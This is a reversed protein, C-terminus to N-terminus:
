GGVTGANVRTILVERVGDILYDLRRSIDRLRLQDNELPQLYQRLVSRSLGVLFITYAAVMRPRDSEAVTRLDRVFAEATLGGRGNELSELIFRDGEAITSRVQTLVAELGDRRVVGWDEAYRADLEGILSVMAAVIQGGDQLVRIRNVHSVMLDCAGKLAEVTATAVTEDDLEPSEIEVKTDPILPVIDVEKGGILTKSESPAPPETEAAWDEARDQPPLLRVDPLSDVSTLETVIVAEHQEDSAAEIEAPPSPVLPAPDPDALVPAVVDDDLTEAIPHADEHLSMPESPATDAPKKGAKAGRKAKTKPEADEGFLEEDSLIPLEPPESAPWTSKVGDDPAEPPVPTADLSSDVSQEDRRRGFLRMIRPM